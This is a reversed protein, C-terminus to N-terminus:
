LSVTHCSIGPVSIGPVSISPVIISPVSIGTVSIGIVYIFRKPEKADLNPPKQTVEKQLKANVLWTFRRAYGEQQKKSRWVGGVVEMAANKKKFKM